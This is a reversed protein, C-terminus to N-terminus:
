VFTDPSVLVKEVQAAKVKRPLFGYLPEKSSLDGNSAAGKSKSNNLHALYPNDTTM